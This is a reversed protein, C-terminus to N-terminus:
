KYCFFDFDLLNRVPPEPKSDSKGARFLKLITKVNAPRSFLPHDKHAATGIGTVM